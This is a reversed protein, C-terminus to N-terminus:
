IASLDVKGKTENEDVSLYLLSMLLSYTITPYMGHLVKMPTIIKFMDINCNILIKYRYRVTDIAFIKHVVSDLM